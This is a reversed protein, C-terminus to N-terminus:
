MELVEHFSILLSTVDLFCLVQCYPIGCPFGLGSRLYIKFIIEKM